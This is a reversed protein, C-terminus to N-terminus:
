KSELKRLAQLVTLRAIARCSVSTLIPISLFIPIMGLSLKPKFFVLPSFYNIAFSTILWTFFSFITGIASAWLSIMFINDQFLKAIQAYSTGILRLTDIVQAHSSLGSQTALVIVMVVVSFIILLLTGSVIMVATSLAHTTDTWRSHSEVFTGPAVQNLTNTLSQSDIYSGPKLSVDLITTPAFGQLPKFDKVGAVNQNELLKQTIVKVKDVRPAPQNTLTSQEVDDNPVHVVLTHHSDRLWDDLFSIGNYAYFSLLSLLFVLVVVTMSLNKTRTESFPIIEIKNKKKSPM